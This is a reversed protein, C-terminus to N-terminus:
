GAPLGPTFHRAIRTERDRRSPTADVTDEDLKTRPRVTCEACERRKGLPTPNDSASLFCISSPRINNILEDLENFGHGFIDRYM